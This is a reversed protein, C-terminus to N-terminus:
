ALFWGQIMGRIYHTAYSESAAQGREGLIIPKVDRLTVMIHEYKTSLHFITNPSVGFEKYPMPTLKGQGRILSSM